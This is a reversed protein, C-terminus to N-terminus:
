HHFQAKNFGSGEAYSAQTSGPTIEDCGRAGLTSCAVETVFTTNSKRLNEHIRGDSM